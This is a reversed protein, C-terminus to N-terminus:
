SHLGWFAYLVGRKYAVHSMSKPSLLLNLNPSGFAMRFGSSKSKSTAVQVSQLALRYIFKFKSVVWFFVFLM